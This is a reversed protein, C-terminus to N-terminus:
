NLMSRLYDCLDEATEQVTKFLLHKVPIDTEDRLMAAERSFSNAAKVPDVFPDDLIRSLTEDITWREFVRKRFEEDPWNDQPEPYFNCKFLEIGTKLYRLSPPEADSTRCREIFEERTM